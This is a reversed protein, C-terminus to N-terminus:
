FWYKAAILLHIATTSSSTTTTTSGSSSSSSGSSSYILFNGEGGITWDDAIPADYAAAAGFALGSSSVSQEPIGLAPIASTTASAMALGIKAGVHFGPLDAFFYNLEPAVIILKGTASATTNSEGTSAYTFYLGLGWDPSLKLGGTLGFNLKSGGEYFGMGLLLGLDKDKGRMFSGHGGSHEMGTDSSAHAGGGAGGGLDVDNESVWGTVGGGANVRYFGNTPRDSLALGKGAAITKVVASGANAAKYITAGNPGAKGKLWAHAEPAALALSILAIAAFVNRM